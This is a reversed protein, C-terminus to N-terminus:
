SRPSQAPGVDFPTYTSSTTLVLKDVRFGDERMWLNIVHKGPTTVNIRAASGDLTSKSWVFQTGFGSIRDASTPAAGDIGAHCSDDNGTPGSGRIWVYYTGTTQFNVKFDLRPSNTTYGTNNSAQIEV